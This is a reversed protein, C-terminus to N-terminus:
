LGNVEKYTKMEELESTLTEGRVKRWYEGGCQEAIQLAAYTNAPGEGRSRAADLFRKSTGPKKRNLVAPAFFVRRMTHSCQPCHAFHSAQEIPRDIQTHM